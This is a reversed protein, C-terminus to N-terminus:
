TEHIDFFMKLSFSFVVSWKTKLNRKSPIVITSGLDKCGYYVVEFVRGTANKFRM